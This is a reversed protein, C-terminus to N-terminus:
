GALAGLVDCVVILEIAGTDLGELSNVFHNIVYDGVHPLTEEVISVYYIGGVVAVVNTLVSELRSLFTAKLLNDVNWQDYPAGIYRNIFGGLNYGCMRVHYRCDERNNALRVSFVEIARGNRQAFSGNLKSLTCSLFM